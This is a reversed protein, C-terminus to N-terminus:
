KVIFFIIRSEFSSFILRINSNKDEAISLPSPENIQETLPYLRDRVTKVANM